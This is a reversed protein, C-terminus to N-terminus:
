EKGVVTLVFRLATDIRENWTGVNGTTTVDFISNPIEIYEYEPEKKYSRQNDEINVNFEYQNRDVLAFQRLIDDKYSMLVDVKLHVDWINKSVSKVDEIFYYRNFQPIYAYNCTFFDNYEIKVIPNLINVGERLTGELTQFLTIDNTKDVKNKEAKSNYLALTFTTPIQVIPLMLEYFDTDENFTQEVVVGRPIDMHNSNNVSLGGFTFGTPIASIYNSALSGNIYLSRRNNADIYIAIKTIETKTQTTLLAIGDYTYFRFTHLKKAVAIIDLDGTVSSITIVHTTSNYVTNIDLEEEDMFIHIDFDDFTYGSIISLTNTYSSGNNITSASNSGTVGILSKNIDLPSKKIDFKNLYLITMACTPYTEVSVVGLIIDIVIQTTTHSHVVFYSSPNVGDSLVWTEPYNLTDFQALFTSSNYKYGDIFNVTLRLVTNGFDDTAYELSASTHKVNNVIEPVPQESILDRYADQVNTGGQFTCVFEITFTGSINTVHITQTYRTFRQFVGFANYDWYYHATKYYFGSSDVGIHTIQYVLNGDEDYDDMSSYKLTLDFQKSTDIASEKYNFRYRHDSDVTFAM